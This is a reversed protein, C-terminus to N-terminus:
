LHPFFTDNKEGLILNREKLISKLEKSWANKHGFISDGLYLKQGKAIGAKLYAIEEKAKKQYKTIQTKYAAKTKYSKGLVKSEIM